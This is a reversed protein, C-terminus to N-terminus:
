PLFYSATLSEHSSTEPWCLHRELSDPSVPPNTPGLWTSDTWPHKGLRYFFSNSPNCPLLELFHFLVLLSSSFLLFSLFLFMCFNSSFQLLTTRFNGFLVSCCFAALAVLQLPLDLSSPLSELKCDELEM